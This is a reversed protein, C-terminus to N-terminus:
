KKLDNMPCIRVENTGADLKIFDVYFLYLDEGLLDDHIDVVVVDEDNFNSLIKKLDKVTMNKNKISEFNEDADYGYVDTLIIDGDGNYQVVLTHEDYREDILVVHDETLYKYISFRENLTLSSGHELNDVMEKTIKSKAHLLLNM